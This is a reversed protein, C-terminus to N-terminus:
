ISEYEYIYKDIFKVNNTKEQESLLYDTFEDAIDIIQAGNNFRYSVGIIKELNQMVMEPYRRYIILSQIKEKINKQLYLTSPVIDDSTLALSIQPYKSFLTDCIVHLLRNYTYIDLLKSSLYDEGVEQLLKVIFFDALPTRGIVKLMVLNHREFYDDAYKKLIEIYKRRRKIDSLNKKELYIEQKLASSYDDDSNKLDHTNVLHPHTISYQHKFISDNIKGKTVGNNKFLDGLPDEKDSSKDPGSITLYIFNYVTDTLSKKQISLYKNNDPKVNIFYNLALRNAIMDISNMIPTYTYFDIKMKPLISFAITIIKSVTIVCNLTLIDVEDLSTEHNSNNFTNEDVYEIITDLVENPMWLITRRLIEARSDNQDKGLKLNSIIEEEFKKTTLETKLHMM